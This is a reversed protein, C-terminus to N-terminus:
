NIWKSLQNKITALLPNKLPANLMKVKKTSNLDFAIIEDLDIPTFNILEVSVNITKKEGNFLPYEELNNNHKHGHIIWGNWDIPRNPYHMLLFQRGKYLLPYDSPIQTAKGVNGHDHNGKLFYIKGNLKELWYNISRHGRSFGLDGLFFVVDDNKVAHNWNKVVTENMEEINRFPRQTYKIINAHDFHVDSIFFVKQTSFDNFHIPSAM